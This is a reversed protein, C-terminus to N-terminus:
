KITFANNRGDYTTVGDPKLWHYSGDAMIYNAGHLHRYAPSQHNDIWSKPLSAKAYNEDTVDVGDSGEGLMLTSTPRVLNFSSIGQINRNIWFSVIIKGRQSRPHLDDPCMFMTYSRGYPQVLMTWPKSVSAKPFYKDNDQAYMAVARGLLSINGQCTRKTAQSKPISWIYILLWFGLVVFIPIIILRFFSRISEGYSSTKM